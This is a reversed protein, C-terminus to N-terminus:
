RAPYRKPIFVTDILKKTMGDPMFAPRVIPFFYPHHTKKGGAHTLPSAEEWVDTKQEHVNRRVMRKYRSRRLRSRINLFGFPIGDYRYHGTSV